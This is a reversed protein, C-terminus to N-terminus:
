LYALVSIGVLTTFVNIERGSVAKLLRINKKKIMGGRQIVEGLCAGVIGKKM